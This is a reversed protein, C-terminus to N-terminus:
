RAKGYWIWNMQIAGAESITIALTPEDKERTEMTLFEWESSIVAAMTSGDIYLILKM